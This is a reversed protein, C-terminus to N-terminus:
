KKNKEYREEFAKMYGATIIGAPLAVIAIGVFASIMTVLQGARTLPYIDGYGVTTLSITAWYIADFFSKFTQPEVNFVILASLFIYGIALSCVMALPKKSKKFVDIIILGNKLYKFLRFIRFIRFLRFLNIYKIVKVGFILVIFIPIIAILDMIALFSFIYKFYSKISKENYKYDATSLRLIYDIVFILVVIIDTIIMIKTVKKFMLPMLSLITIIIMFLDYLLSIKNDSRGIEIIEYIKRRM